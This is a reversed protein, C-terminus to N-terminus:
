RRGQMAAQQKQKLMMYEQYEPDNAPAAPQRPTEGPVFEGRARLARDQILKKFSAITDRATSNRTSLTGPEFLMNRFAAVESERAVSEPDFLKAADIAMSDLKMALDKNHSGLMEYTGKKKVLEDLQDAEGLINNLRNDFEKIDKKPAPNNRKYEEKAVFERGKPTELWNGGSGGAEGRAKKAQANNENIKSRMYEDSLAKDAKKQTQEDQWQQTRKGYLDVEPEQKFEEVGLFNGIGTGGLLKQMATAEKPNMAKDIMESNVDYGAKRFELEMAKNKRKEALARKRNEEMGQLGQLVGGLAGDFRQQKQQDLQEQTVYAM